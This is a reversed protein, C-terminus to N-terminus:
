GVRLTFLSLEPDAGVRVLPSGKGFGLGRNVYLQNGRVTYLGRVYPQGIRRFLGDTFGPITVQGGHTHGSLCVLNGWAPLKRATPPNHALVLRTGAAPAGKFTADVDDHDSRGDDVGLVTLPAGRVRTVTHQNQLVTYGAAELDRRLRPADTWHDHNGLVAFTPAAIGALLRPVQDIPDRRTTIYDGTLFVLDPGAENLERVAAIVRGDPTNRGVHIDSLQGVVLGDHAPDLGPVLLETRSVEFRNWEGRRREKDAAHVVAPGLVTAGALATLLSRRSLAHPM